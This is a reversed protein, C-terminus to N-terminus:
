PEVPVITTVLGTEVDYVHGSVAVRAPDAFVSRLLEVDSVVTVEPDLVAKAVLGSQDVGIRDAYRRRFEDNALFGTGCQNHHIIAVEYLLGESGMLEGIQALFYIDNIVEPTVRGGVNREVIADSLGLGLFVAPDTRPDLCTIVILGLNPVVGGGRHGDAAAFSRNRQLATDFRSGEPNGSTTPTAENQKDLETM